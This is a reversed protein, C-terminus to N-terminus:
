GAFISNVTEVIEDENQLYWKWDPIYFGKIADATNKIGYKTLNEPLEATRNSPRLYFERGM